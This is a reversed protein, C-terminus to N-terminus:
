LLYEEWIMPESGNLNDNVFSIGEKSLKGIVNFPGWKQKKFLYSNVFYSPRSDIDIKEEFHADELKVNDSTSSHTIMGGLFFDNKDTEELYIIPHYAENRGKKAGELIDGINFHNTM